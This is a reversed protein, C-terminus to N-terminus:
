DGDAALQGAAARRLVRVPERTDGDLDACLRALWEAPQSCSPWPQSAHQLRLLQVREADLELKKLRTRLNALESDALAQQRWNQRLKRLPVVVQARWDRSIRKMQALRTEDCDVARCELWAGALLLCVDGGAAQLDLCAAEVGPQAYCDLAFRWLDDHTMLTPKKRPCDSPNGLSRIFEAAM